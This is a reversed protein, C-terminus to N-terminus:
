RVIYTFLALRMLSKFDLISLLLINSQTRIESRAKKMNGHVIAALSQPTAILGREYKSSIELYEKNIHKPNNTIPIRISLFGQFIV